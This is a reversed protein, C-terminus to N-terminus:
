GDHSAEDFVGYVMCTDRLERNLFLQVSNIMRYETLKRM